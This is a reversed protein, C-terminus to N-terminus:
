AVVRSPAPAPFPARHALPARQPARQRDQRGRAGHEVGILPLAFPAGAQGPSLTLDEVEDGLAHRVRLDGGREPDGRSGDPPMELVDESLQADVGGPRGRHSGRM